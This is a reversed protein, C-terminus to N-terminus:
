PALDGDEGNAVADSLTGHEISDLGQEFPLEKIATKRKAGFTRDLHGDLAEDYSAGLAEEPGHVGVDLVEESRKIMLKKEIVESTGQGVRINQLQDLL